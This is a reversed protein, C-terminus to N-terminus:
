EETFFLEITSHASDSNLYIFRYAGSQPVTIEFDRSYQVCEETCLETDSRAISQLFYRSSDGPSVNDRFDIWCASGCNATMRFSATLGTKEVLDFSTAEVISWGPEENQIQSDCAIVLLLLLPLYRM